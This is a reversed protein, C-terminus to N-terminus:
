KELNEMLWAWDEPTYTKEWLLVDGGMQRIEILIELAENRLKEDLPKETATPDNKPVDPPKGNGNGNFKEGFPEPIKGTKNPIFLWKELNQPNGDFGRWREFSKRFFETKPKSGIERIVRDWFEKKPTRGTIEKVMQVAPHFRRHDAPKGAPAANAPQQAPSRPAPKGAPQDNFNKDPPTRPPFDTKVIKAGESTLSAPKNHQNLIGKFLNRNMLFENRNMLFLIRIIQVFFPREILKRLRTFFIQEDSYFGKLPRIVGKKYVHIWGIDDLFKKLQSVNSKPIGTDAATTELKPNCLGSDKNRRRCYYGFLTLAAHKIAGSDGILEYQADHFCVDPIYAM